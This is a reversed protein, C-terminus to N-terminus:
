IPSSLQPISGLAKFLGEVSERLASDEAGVIAKARKIGYRVAMIRAATALDLNSWVLYLDHHGDDGIHGVAL